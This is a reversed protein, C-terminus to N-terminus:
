IINVRGSYNIQVPDGVLRKGVAAEASYVQTEQHFPAITFHM